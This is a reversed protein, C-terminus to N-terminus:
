HLKLVQVGQQSFLKILSGDDMEPAEPDIIRALESNVCLLLTLEKFGSFNIMMLDGQGAGDEVVGSEAAVVAECSEPWDLSSASVSKLALLDKIGLVELVAAFAQSQCFAEAQAISGADGAAGTLLLPTDGAFVGVLQAAKVAESPAYLGPTLTSLRLFDQLQQQHKNTTM